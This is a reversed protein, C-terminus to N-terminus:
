RYSHSSMLDTFHPDQHCATSVPGVLGGYHAREILREILREQTAVGLENNDM